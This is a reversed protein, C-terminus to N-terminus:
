KNKTTGREECVVVMWEKEESERYTFFSCFVLYLIFLTLKFKCTQQLLKAFKCMKLKISTPSKPPLNTFNYM